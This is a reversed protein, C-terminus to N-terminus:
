TTSETTKSGVEFFWNHFIKGRKEITAQLGRSLLLKRAENATFAHFTLKFEEHNTRITETYDGFEVLKKGLKQWATTIHRWAWIFLDKANWYRHVLEVILIGNTKATRKIEDVMTERDRSHVGVEGLVNGMAVVYDFIDGRLPLKKADALILSGNLKGLRLKTQSTMLMEKDKDIGVVDFGKEALPVVHRGTGCGVDLLVGKVTLYKYLIQTEWDVPFGKAFEKDYIEARSSFANTM